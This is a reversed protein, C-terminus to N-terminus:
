KGKNGFLKNWRDIRDKLISEEKDAIWPYCRNTIDKLYEESVRKVKGDDISAISLERM